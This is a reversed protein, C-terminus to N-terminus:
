ATRKWMYCTVYPQLNNHSGDGGASGTSGSVTHNHSADIQFGDKATSSSKYTSPYLFSSDGYASLIGKTSNGCSWDANQGPFNNVSGTLTKTSISLSSGTHSHSPTESINLTHTKEGGTKEVTSFDSDSSNVGVPVRGSGWSTWTGGFLSSPNVNRISMYIAGIPYAKNLASSIAETVASKIADDMEDPTVYDIETKVKFYVSYNFNDIQKLTINEDGTPATTPKTITFQNSTHTNDMYFFTLDNLIYLDSPIEYLFVGNTPIVAVTTTNGGSTFKITGENNTLIQLIISNTGDFISDLCECSCNNGTNITLTNKM